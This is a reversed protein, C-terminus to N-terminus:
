CCVIAVNCEATLGSVARGAPTPHASVNYLQWLLLGGDCSRGCLYVAAALEVLSAGSMQNIRHLIHSGYSAAREYVIFCLGIPTLQKESKHAWVSVPM